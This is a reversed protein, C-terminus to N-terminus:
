GVLWFYKNFNSTYYDGIDNNTKGDALMTQYLVENTTGTHSNNSMLVIVQSIANSHSVKAGSVPSFLYHLKLRKRLNIAFDRNNLVISAIHDNSIGYESLEANTLGGYRLDEYVNYNNDDLSLRVGAVRNYVDTPVIQEILEILKDFMRDVKQNLLNYEFTLKFDVESLKGEFLKHNVEILQRISQLQGNIYGYVSDMDIQIETVQRILDSVTSQLNAINSRITNLDSIQSEINAIDAKMGDIDKIAESLTDIIEAYKELEKQFKRCYDVIERLDRKYYSTSPFEETTFSM